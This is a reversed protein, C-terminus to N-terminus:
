ADGDVASTDISPDIKRVTAAVRAHMARQASTVGAGQRAQTAALRQRYARQRAANDVHIRSRGM